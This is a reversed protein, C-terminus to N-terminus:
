DPRNLSPSETSSEDSSIDSVSYIWVPGFQNVDILRKEHVLTEFRQQLLKTAGVGLRDANDNQLFFRWNIAIHSIGQDIFYQHIAISSTAQFLLEEMRYGGFVSDIRAEKHLYLHYGRMWVLWIKQTEIENLFQYAPYNEPLRKELYNSPSQFFSFTQQQQLLHQAPHYLWCASLVIFGGWLAPFLICIIPISAIFFLPTAPMLFRVQQVQFAWLLSWAIGVYAYVKEVRNLKNSVFLPLFCFFAVTIGLSGQFFHIMDRSTFLRWPLLLYDEFTRGMGYNDLTMKYGVARWSDWHEGGFREYGLPFIPNGKILLNRLYFPIGTMLCGLLFRPQKRVIYLPTLIAILFLGSYKISIVFGCLLGTLFAQSSGTKTSSYVTYLCLLVLWPQVYCSAGFELATPILLFLIGGTISWHSSCRMEKLIGTIGFATAMTLLVGIFRLNFPPDHEGGLSFFLSLISHWGQPFFAFVVQDTPIFGGAQAYQKPLALHYTLSDRYWPSPSAMVLYLLILPVFPIFQKWDFSSNTKNAKYFTFISPILIICGASFPSLLQLFCLLTGMGQFWLFLWVTTFFFASFANGVNPYIAKAGWILSLLVLTAILMYLDLIPQKSADFCM